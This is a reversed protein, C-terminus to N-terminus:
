RAMVSAHDKRPEADYNVAIATVLTLRSILENHEEAVPHQEPKGPLGSVAVYSFPLHSDGQFRSSLSLRTSRVLRWDPIFILLKMGQTLLSWKPTLVGWDRSVTEVKFVRRRKAIEDFAHYLTEQSQTLLVM